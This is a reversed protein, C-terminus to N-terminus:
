SLIYSGGVGNAGNRYTKCNENQKYQIKLILARKELPAM